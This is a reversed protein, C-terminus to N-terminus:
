PQRGNLGGSASEYGFDHTDRLTACALVLILAGMSLSVWFIWIM